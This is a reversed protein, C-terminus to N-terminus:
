SSASSYRKLGERWAIKNIIFSIPLIILIM